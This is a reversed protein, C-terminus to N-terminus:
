FSHGDNVADLAYRIAPYTDATTRAGKARRLAEARVAPWDVRDRYLAHQQVYDLVGGLYTQPTITALAGVAAVAGTLCVAVVAAGARCVRRRRSPARRVLDVFAIIAILPAAMAVAL